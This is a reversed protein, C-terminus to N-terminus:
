FPIDDEDDDDDDDVKKSKKGAKSKKGKSKKPEDEEDDEDEDDFDDEDEDKKSKKTSKSKGKKPAPEDEEDEEDEDDFDEDEDVVKKSKKGKKTVPEDDEDEDDFDDEDVVKKSKSKSKKPADDEDEDEDFDDEDKKSKAPAAKKGKSKKSKPVDDEDEDEDEDEDFDDDDDKKSKKGAKAKKSKPVDDEDEDEDEDEDDEEEVVKKSKKGKKPVDGKSKKSKSKPEDEEEEEDEDDFDEDEDVDKKSKKTSKIGMKDAWKKFDEALLKEDIEPQATATALDWSLMAQEEETLPTRKEGLQVQYQDAPAKSSDYYVRLDRGYKVDNVAFAKVAGTQKSEVTNLGKLEQIKGLLSRGLKIAYKATLSDSDKDKFGSAREAKTPKPMREPLQKQKARVIGIMWWEQTFQILQKDREKREKESLNAYLMAACDRWPDAKTSDREQADPDYSPCPTPFKGKSGDKKKTTIWYNATSFLGKDLRITTWKKEPFKFVDVLDRVGESREGRGGTKGDDLDIAM